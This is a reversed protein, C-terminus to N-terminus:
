RQQTTAPDPQRLRIMKGRYLQRIFATTREVVPDVRPGFEASLRQCIEALTQTGDIQRWTFTGVEDLQIRFHKHRMFRLLEDFPKVVFKPRLLVIRGDGREEMGVVPEPVCDLLNVPDKKKGM